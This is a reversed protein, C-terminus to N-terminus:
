GSSEVRASAELPSPRLLVDPQATPQVTGAPTLLADTRVTVTARVLIRADPLTASVAEPPPATMATLLNAEWKDSNRSVYAAVPIGILVMCPVSLNLFDRELVFQAPFLHTLGCAIVYSFAGILVLGVTVCSVLLVLASLPVGIRTRGYHRFLLVARQLRNYRHIPRDSPM